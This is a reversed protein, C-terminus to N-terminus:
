AVGDGVSGQPIETIQPKTLEEAPYTLSDGECMITTPAQFEVKRWAGEISLYQLPPQEPHAIFIFEKFLSIRAAEYSLQKYEVPLADLAKIFDNLTIM